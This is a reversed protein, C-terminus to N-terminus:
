AGGGGNSEITREALARDLEYHLVRVRERDRDNLPLAEALLFLCWGRMYVLEADSAPGGSLYAARGLLRDV